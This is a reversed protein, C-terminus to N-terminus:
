EQQTAEQLGKATLAFAGQTFRLYGYVILARICRESVDVSTESAQTLQLPFVAITTSELCGGSALGDVIKQCELQQNPTLNPFHM